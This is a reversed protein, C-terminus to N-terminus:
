LFLTKPVHMTLGGSVECHYHTDTHRGDDLIRLVKHGEFTPLEKPKEAAPAVPEEAVHTYTAVGETSEAKEEIVVKKKRPMEYKINRGKM